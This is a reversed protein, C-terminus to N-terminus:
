PRRESNLRAIEALIEPHPAFWEGHLRHEAFSHHYVREQDRGGQACALIRLPVPSGTQLMSLRELPSNSIGIKIGHAVHGIFYAVQQECRFKHAGRGIADWPRDTGMLMVASPSFQKIASQLHQERADEWGLGSSISNAVAMMRDHGYVPSVSVTPRRLNADAM